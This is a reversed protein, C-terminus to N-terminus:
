PSVEYLFLGAPAPQVRWSSPAAAAFAPPSVHNYRENVALRAPNLVVRAGVPLDSVTLGTFDKLPASSPFGWYFDLLHLTRPDTYVTSGTAPLTGALARELATARLRQRVCAADGRLMLGVFGVLVLGVAVTSWSRPRPAVQRFVQSIVVAVIIAAPLLLLELYREFLPLPHYSRFSTSAFNFAAATGLLWLLVTTLAPQWVRRSTAWLVGGIALLPLASFATLLAVPGQLFLRKLLALSQSGSYGMMAGENWFMERKVLTNKSIEHLRYLFDGNVAAYALGEGVVVLLAGGVLAALSLLLAPRRTQGLRYLGCLGMPVLALLATEKVLYGLGILLGCLGALWVDKAAARTRHLLSLFLCCGAGAVLASLSDPLLRGATAVQQPLVALLAAGVLAPGLGFQHRMFVFILALGALSAVFPLAFTTVESVGLSRFLGAVPYILGIRLPFVPARLPINELSSPAGFHFDGHRIEASLMAYALDDSDTMGSLCLLRLAVAVGLIALGLGLKRRGNM